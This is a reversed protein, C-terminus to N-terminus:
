CLNINGPRRLSHQWPSIRLTTYSLLALHLGHLPRSCLAPSSRLEPCGWPAWGQKTVAALCM